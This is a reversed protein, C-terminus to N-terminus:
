DPAVAEERRSGKLFFSLALAVVEALMMWVRSAVAVVLSVPSSFVSVLLVFMMSERVGIGGPAVVAIFGVCFAMAIVSVLFAYNETDVQQFANVFVIFVAGFLLWFVIYYAYLSIIGSMSPIAVRAFAAGAKGPLYRLLRIIRPHMLLGLLVWVIVADSVSVPLDVALFLAPIGVAISSTLLLLTELYLSVAASAMDVGYRSVLSMRSTYSWVGGPIYRSLSSLLWIFVSHRLPVAFGMARLLLHWGLADLFFLGVLALLSVGLLWPDIAWEVSAIQQWQSILALAMFLVALVLILTDRKKM